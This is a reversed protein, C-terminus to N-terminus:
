KIQKELKVKGNDCLTIYKLEPDKPMVQPHGPYFQVDSEEGKNKTYALLTYGTLLKKIEELCITKLYDRKAISTGWACWIDCNEKDITGLLETIHQINRAIINPYKKSEGAIEDFLEDEALDDSDTARQPYLNLMYWARYGDDKNKHTLAYKRVRGVTFDLNLPVATSPNLGICILVRDGGRESEIFEEGLVYRVDMLDCEVPGRDISEYTRPYSRDFEYVWKGWNKKIM